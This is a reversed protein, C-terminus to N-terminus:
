QLQRLMLIEVEKSSRWYFTGIDEVIYLGGKALFPFLTEFSKIIHSSFHSGDDIIVDIDGIKQAVAKLFAEDNQSGQYIHVRSEAHSSKDNIDIAHIHGQQFFDRWMRLSAGGTGPKPDGGVGIELLTIPEARLKGLYGDYVRCNEEKDTGHTRALAVLDRAVTVDM